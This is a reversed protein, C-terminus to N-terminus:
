LLHRPGLQARVGVILDTMWEERLSSSLREFMCVLSSQLWVAVLVKRVEASTDLQLSFCAHFGLAAQILCRGLLNASQRMPEHLFSICICEEIRIFQSGM